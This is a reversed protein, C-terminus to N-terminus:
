CFLTDIHSCVKLKKLDGLTVDVTAIRNNAGVLRELNIMTEVAAPLEDFKNNSVDLVRVRDVNALVSKPIGQVGLPLEPVPKTFLRCM